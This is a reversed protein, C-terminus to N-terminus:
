AHNESNENLVPIRVEFTSGRGLESKISIQGAHSEVIQRSIYLGLGLGSINSESIAREFRHFIREQDAPSVGMGEDMVRLVAHNDEKRMSVRVPKREGYKLANTLLNAIVQKIRFRDAKIIVDESELSAEIGADTFHDKMGNFEEVLLTKFNCPAVEYVLRGGNLRSIDLMDEILRTLQNIQRQTAFSYETMNQASLASLDGKKIQRALIQAQLKLSTIPTKLEHSAISLFTDRSQIAELSKQYLRANDIATAAQAALGRVINEEKKTFIGPEPHGFFLGGIVEKSRSVVPVALYSKVPLHGKPMGVNPANKGYRPDQTIDDSRVVSEGAFTPAFVPTNRPMGFKAFAERPAGSLSYLTYSEGKENTVNYFLAGFKARTLQTAADTITQVLKELDLEASITQGLSNITELTSVSDKLAERTNRVEEIDTNTGFWHVVEGQSNKIPNVRTLFWRFEGNQSRLPFEMEFHEGTAISRKWEILVAPLIKPDHVREWGWGEMQIPTTGSYDYWKDNYWYIYGDPKAMWALQPISNALKRYREENERLAEEAIKKETVDRVVLVGFRLSGDPGTVPSAGYSGYWSRNKQVVKVEQAAFREGKLMRTIPWEELPLKRGELSFLTFEPEYKSIERIMEDHSAFGHIRLAEDNMRLIRGSPDVFIVGETLVSIVADLRESKEQIENKSIELSRRTRVKETVEYGQVAIAYVEGKHDIMPSYVFDVFANKPKGFDAKELTVPFEEGVFPVKSQAVNDLLTIFGQAEVEPLVERLTKGIINENGILRSYEKNARVFEYQPLSLIAMFAPSQTFIEDLIKESKRVAIESRKQGLSVVAQNCAVNIVLRETESPFDARHSGLILVGGPKGLSHSAVQLYGDGFPNPIEIPMRLKDDLDALLELKRGLAAADEKKLFGRATFATEIHVDIGPSVVYAFDLHLSHFLVEILSDAVQSPSHSQWLSPLTSIAVIDRAARRLALLEANADM